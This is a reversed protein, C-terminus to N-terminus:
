ITLDAALVAAVFEDSKRQLRDLLDRLSREYVPDPEAPTPKLLGDLVKMLGKPKKPALYDSIESLWHARLKARAARFLYYVNTMNTRYNVWLQRVAPDSVYAGLDGGVASSAISWDRFSNDLKANDATGVSRLRLSGVFGASAESVQRVLATRVELRRDTEQWERAVHQGAYAFVFALVSGVVAVALASSALKSV